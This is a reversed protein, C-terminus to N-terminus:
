TPAHIIQTHTVVCTHLKTYTDGPIHPDIHMAYMGSMLSYMPMCTLLWAQKLAKVSENVGALSREEEVNSDDDARLAEHLLAECEIDSLM